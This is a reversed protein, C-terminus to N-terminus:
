CNSIPEFHSIQIWQEDNIQIKIAYFSSFEIPCQVRMLQRQNDSTTEYGYAHYTKFTSQKQLELLKSFLTCCFEEHKRKLDERQEKENICAEEAKLSSLVIKKFISKRFM